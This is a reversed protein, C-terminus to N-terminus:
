RDLLDEGFGDELPKQVVKMVRATRDVYESLEGMVKNLQKESTEPSALWEALTKGHIRISTLALAPPNSSYNAWLLSRRHLREILEQHKQHIPTGQLWSYITPRTVSFLTALTSKSVGLMTRIESMLKDVPFTTSEVAQPKNLTSRLLELIEHPTISGGFSSQRQLVRLAMPSQNEFWKEPVEDKSLVSVVLNSGNFFPITSNKSRKEKTSSQNSIVRPYKDSFASSLSYNYNSQRELVLQM